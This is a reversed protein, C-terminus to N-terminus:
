RHHVVLSLTSATAPVWTAVVAVGDVAIGSDPRNSDVANVEALRLEDRAREEVGRPCGVVPGYM